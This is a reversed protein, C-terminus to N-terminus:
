RESGHGGVHSREGARVFAELRTRALDPTNEPVHRSYRLVMHLSKWGGLQRLEIPSVGARVCTVAWIHRLDHIRLTWAQDHTLWPTATRTTTRM